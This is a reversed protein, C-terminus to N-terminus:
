AAVEMLVISSRSSNTQVTITGSPQPNNFQIKYTIASTTSPSDLISFSSSGGWRGSDGTFGVGYDLAPIIDTSDRLLKGNGYTNAASTEIGGINGFVLIKNSSSSPTISASLGIDAYTASTTSFGSTTSGNIVQLINGTNQPFTVKGDSALVINNSSSSGHKINTTNLTAM